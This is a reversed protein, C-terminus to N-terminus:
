KRGRKRAAIQAVILSGGCAGVMVLVCDWATFGVWALVICVVTMWCYGFLVGIDSESM